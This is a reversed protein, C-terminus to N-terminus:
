RNLLEELNLEALVRKFHNYTTTSRVEGKEVRRVFVTAIKELEKLAEVKDPPIILSGVEVDIVTKMKRVAM